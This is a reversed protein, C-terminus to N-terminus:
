APAPAKQFWLTVATGHTEADDDADRSEVEVRGWFREVYKKVLPMGFGTGREGATGTRSTATDVRFLVRLLAEPMGIGDDAIRLKVWPDEVEIRVHITGGAYSFKLANSIVNSIVHHVLSVTDAVVFLGESREPFRKEVLLAKAQLRTQFLTLSIGLASVLPVPELPLACKGSELARLDRVGLIIDEQHKLCADLLGFLEVEEEGKNSGRVLAMFGRMASVPNMLDHGLIHLLAEYEAVQKALEERALALQVHTRVRACLLELRIPKYVFDAGGFRFANMPDSGDVLYILPVSPDQQGSTLEQGLSYGENGLFRDDIIMLDVREDRLQAKARDRDKASLVRYGEGSLLTTLVQLTRPADAVVLLTGPRDPTM